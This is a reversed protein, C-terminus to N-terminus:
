GSVFSYILSHERLKEDVFSAEELQVRSLNLRTSVEPPLYLRFFEAAVEPRAFVKRFFADHPNSVPKKKM